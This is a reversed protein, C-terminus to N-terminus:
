GAEAEIEASDLRPALRPMGLFDSPVPLFCGDASEPQCDDVLRGHHGQMVPQGNFVGLPHDDQPETM